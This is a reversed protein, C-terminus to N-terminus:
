NGVPSAAFDELFEVLRSVALEIVAEGDERNALRADGINGNTTIEEFMAAADVFAGAPSGGGALSTHRFRPPVEEGKALKDLRVLQPAIALGLSAEIECAHAYARGFRETMLDAAAVLYIATAVSVGLEMRAQTAIVSLLAQNGGHGNLLFFRKAGHASLSRITDFIVASMTEPRLTITGPFRMHHPSLGFPLSPAVLARPRMREAVLGAVTTALTIDTSLTMGPGHQETSGLPILVVDAADLAEKAEPWTLDALFVTQEPAQM